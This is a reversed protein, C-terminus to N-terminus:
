KEKIAPQPTPQPGPKPAPKPAQQPGPKPAAEDVAAVAAAPEIAPLAEIRRRVGNLQETLADRHAGLADVLWRASAVVQGSVGAAHEILRRATERAEGVRQDAWGDIAARREADKAAEATRRDALAIEFDAAAREADRRAQALVGTAEERMAQSEEEARRRADEAEEHALELIQRLRIGVVESEAKDASCTCHTASGSLDEVRSLLERERRSVVALEATLEDIRRQTRTVYRDVQRRDYGRLASEFGSYAHLGIQEDILYADEGTLEPVAPPSAPRNPPVPASGTATPSGPSGTSGSPGPPAPSGPPAPPPPAQRVAAPVSPRNM